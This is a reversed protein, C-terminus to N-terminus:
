GALSRGDPLTRHCLLAILKGSDASLPRGDGWAWEVDTATIRRDTVEVDFRGAGGATLDALVLRGFDGACEAMAPGNQEATFRVPMTVHAVVERWGACLSPAERASDPARELLDALGTCTDGVYPQLDVDPM